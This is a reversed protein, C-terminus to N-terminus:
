PLTWTLGAMRTETASMGFLDVPKKLRVLTFYPEWEFVIDACGVEVVM